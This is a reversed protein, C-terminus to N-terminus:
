FTLAFHDKAHGLPAGSEREAASVQALATALRDRVGTLRDVRQVIGQQAQQELSLEEGGARRLATRRVYAVVNVGFAWAGRELLM